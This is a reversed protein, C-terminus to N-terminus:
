KAGPPRYALRLRALAAGSLTRTGRRQDTYTVKTVAGVRYYAQDAILYGAARANSAASLDSFRVPARNVRAPLRTAIRIAVRAARRAAEVGEYANPYWPTDSVGRVMVWPIGRSAAAFAFGSSENEEIDSQYLFNQAAIWSLPETWTQAQGMVGTMVRNLIRGKARPNGTANARSTTGMRPTAQGIAALQRTGAYATIYPLHQDTGSPGYGFGKATEPTPVRHGYGGIVAGAIDTGRGAHVQAGRNSSQYGGTQYHVNEKDAVFGSLVVDGVDVRRSQSGATGSFVLARAHFRTALLYNALEASEDDEFGLVDVVPRGAITGVYFTYGSLRVTKTVHMAALIPAQEYGVASVIGVPALRNRGPKAAAGASLAIPMVVAALLLVTLAVSLRTRHRRFSIRSM